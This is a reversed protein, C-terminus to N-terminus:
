GSSARDGQRARRQPAQRDRRCHRHRLRHVQRDRHRYFSFPAYNPDTSIASRATRYVKGLLTDPDYTPAPAETAPAETGPAATPAATPAPTPTAGAGCAAVMLVAISALATLRLSKRM